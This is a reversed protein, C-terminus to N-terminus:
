KGTVVGPPLLECPLSRGSPRALNGPRDLCGELHLKSNVGVENSCGIAALALFFVPVVFALSRM